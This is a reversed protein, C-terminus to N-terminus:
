RGRRSATAGVTVDRAAERPSLVGAPHLRTTERMVRNALDLRALTSADAAPAHRLPGFVEDAENRLRLSLGPEVVRLDVSM